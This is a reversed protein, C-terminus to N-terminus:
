EPMPRACPLLITFAAGRGAASEVVIMGGHSQVIDRSVCLGLGTGKGEEKTTFLPEFIKDHIDDPIGCGTDTFRILVWGNQDHTTQISLTGGNEMADRANMVMNLFVIQLQDRDAIVLPLDPDLDKIVPIAGKEVQFSAIQLAAEVDENINVLDMNSEKHRYFHTLSQVIRIVRNAESELMQLLRLNGDSKEQTERNQERHKNMLAVIGLICTLPNFIEHAIGGAIRGLASLKESAVLLAQKKQLELNAQELRLILQANEIIIGMHQSVATFLELDEETFGLLRERTDLYIVGLKKKQGKIPACMTSRIRHIQISESGQFREDGMADSTLISEDSDFSRRIITKSICIETQGAPERRMYIAEPLMEANAENLLMIAGRDAGLIEVVKELSRNLLTPLHRIARFDTLAQYILHVRQYAERTERFDKPTPSLDALSKAARSPITLRVTAQRFTDEDPVIRAAAAFPNSGQLVKEPVAAPMVQLVTTGLAIEDGAKLTQRSVSLDNVRTGNVSGLDEIVLGQDMSLIRAHKRSVLLDNIVIENSPDRGICVTEQSLPFILGACPGEKVKLEAAENM